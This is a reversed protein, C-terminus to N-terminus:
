VFYDWILTTDETIDHKARRGILWKAETPTIGTGPRKYVIDDETIIEGEKIDRATTASRRFKERKEIEDQSVIKYNSGLCEFINQGEKCIIELDRPDASVKHDWGEMNKDLTFHKEIIKAGKAIAALSISYGLTHDSYGIECDYIQQLTNMFNLNVIENRPPYISVCHLLSFNDYNAKKFINYIEDIEALTSMGTSIIIPLRTKIAAKIMRPNDADMSSLKIFDSKISALFEVGHEDAPTCGFDIGIRKSYEQFIKLQNKSAMFAKTQERITSLGLDKSEWKDVNELKVKGSDLDDLYKNTCLNTDSFFQFKVAQAGCRKAEDIMKLGIETNGNYNCGIEAIIYLHDLNKLDVAQGGSTNKYKGVLM